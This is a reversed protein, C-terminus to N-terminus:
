TPHPFTQTDLKIHHVSYAAKLVDASLGAARNMQENMISAVVRWVLDQKVRTLLFVSKDCM